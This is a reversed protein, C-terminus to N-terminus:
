NPLEAGVSKAISKATCDSSPSAHAASLSDALAIPCLVSAEETSVRVLSSCAISAKFHLQYKHRALVGDLRVQPRLEFGPITESPTKSLSRRISCGIMEPRSLQFLSSHVIVAKLSRKRHLLRKDHRFPKNTILLASDKM